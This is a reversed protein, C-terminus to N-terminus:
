WNLLLGRRDRAELASIPRLSLAAGSGTVPFGMPTYSLQSLTQRARLPNDTRDRGSGGVIKGPTQCLPRNRSGTFCNGEPCPPEFGDVGVLYLLGCKLPEM